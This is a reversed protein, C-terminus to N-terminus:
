NEQLVYLGWQAQSQASGQVGFVRADVCLAGSAQPNATSCAANPDASLPAIQSSTIVGFDNAGAPKYASLALFALARKNASITAQDFAAVNGGTTQLLTASYAGNRPRIVYLTVDVSSNANGGYATALYANAGNPVIDFGFDAAGAPDFREVAEVVVTGAPANVPLAVPQNPHVSMGIMDVLEFAQNNLVIARGAVIGSGAAATTDATVSFLVQRNADDWSWTCNWSLGSGAAPLYYDIPCLAYLNQNLGVTGASTVGAPYPIAFSLTQGAWVMFPRSVFPRASLSVGGQPFVSAGYFALLQDRDDTALQPQGSQLHPAMLATGDASHELGLGHGFAHALAVFLRQKAAADNPNALRYADIYVQPLQRTALYNVYVNAMEGSPASGQAWSVRIDAQNPDTVPTFRFATNGEWFTIAADVAAELADGSGWSPTYVNLNYTTWLPIRDNWRDVVAARAVNPSPAGQGGQQGGPPNAPPNGQQGGSPAAGGPAPAGGSLCSVELRFDGATTGFQTGARSAQITYTGTQPLTLTIEADTTGGYNDNDVWRGDPYILVLYPDLNGSTATMGINVQQTAVGEFHWELYWRNDDITDTQTEMCFILGQDVVWAPFGPGPYSIPGRQWNGAAGGAQGGSTCSTQLDYTGSTTGNAGGVRTAIITYWGDAPATYVLRATTGGGSNNDSAVWNSNGDYLDIYPDLDGSLATMTVQLTEGARLSVYWEDYWTTDNLTSSAGSGCLISGQQGLGSGAQGGGPQGGSSACEVVIYYEGQGSVRDATVTYTGAAANPFVIQADYGGGSDDDMYAVGDPALVTLYPDLDGSTARMTFTLTEGGQASFSWTDYTALDDISDTLPTDCYLTGSNVTAGIGGAQGGGAQGGPPAGLATCAVQLTYEGQGGVSNAEISYTGAVASPITVLANYGGGSDDDTFLQGNPDYVSLYPDLDGSVVDMTITLTEGGQAVFSWVDYPANPDATNTIPTNCYVSGSDITAGIGGAQGGGAQGGGAQGGGAQQCSVSLTYMGSSSGGMFGVRTATIEYVGDALVTYTLLADYGGGSDDDEALLTGDPAHLLLYSDLDGSVAGMFVSITTNASLPISWVEAYLGDDIPGSTFTDGCAITGSQATPAAQTQPTGWWAAGGVGLVAILIAYVSAKLIRRTSMTM